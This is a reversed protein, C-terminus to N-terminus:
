PTEEKPVIRLIINLVDYICYIFLHCNVLARIFNEHFLHWYLIYAGKSSIDKNKKITDQRCFSVARPKLGSNNVRPSCDQNQTMELTGLAVTFYLVQQCVSFFSFFITRGAHCSVGTVPTRKYSVKGPIHRASHSLWLM